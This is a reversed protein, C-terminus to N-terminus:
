LSVFTMDFGGPEDLEAGPNNCSGQLVPMLPSVQHLPQPSLLGVWQQAQHKGAAQLGGELRGEVRAQTPEDLLDGLPLFQRFM